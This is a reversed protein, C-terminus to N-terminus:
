LMANEQTVSDAKLGLLDLNLDDVEEEENPLLDVERNPGIAVSEKPSRPPKEGFTDKSTDNRPKERHVHVLINGFIYKILRKSKIVEM